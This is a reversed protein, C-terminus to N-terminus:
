IEHSELHKVKHMYTYVDHMCWVNTPTPTLATENESNAPLHDTNLFGTSCFKVTISALVIPADERPEWPSPSILIGHLM